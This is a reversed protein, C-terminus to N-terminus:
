ERIWLTVLDPGTMDRRAIDHPSNLDRVYSSVRVRVCVCVCVVCGIDDM